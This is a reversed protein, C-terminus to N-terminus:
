YAGLLKLFARAGGPRCRLGQRIAHEALGGHRAEESQVASYLNLLMDGRKQPKRSPSENIALRLCFTRLSGVARLRAGTRLRAGAAMSWLFSLSFNLLSSISARWCCAAVASTSLAM